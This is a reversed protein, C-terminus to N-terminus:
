RGDSTLKKEVSRECSDMFVVYMVEGGTFIKQSRTMYTSGDQKIFELEYADRQTLKVKVGGFYCKAMMCPMRTM